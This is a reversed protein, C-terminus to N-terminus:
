LYKGGGGDLLWRPSVGTLWIFRLIVLAPITVGNEYNTWTRLPLKLARALTPGGQEGYRELRIKHVREALMRNAQHPLTLTEQQGM